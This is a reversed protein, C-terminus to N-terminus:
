FVNFFFLRKVTALGVPNGRREKAGASIEGAYGTRMTALSSNNVRLTVPEVPAQISTNNTKVPLEHGITSYRLQPHNQSQSGGMQFGETDGRRECHNQNVPASTSNMNRPIQRLM